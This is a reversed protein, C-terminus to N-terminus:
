CCFSDVGLTPPSGKSTLRSAAKIKQLYLESELRRGLDTLRRHPPPDISLQPDVFIGEPIPICLNRNHRDIESLSRRDECTDDRAAPRDGEPETRSRVHDDFPESTM